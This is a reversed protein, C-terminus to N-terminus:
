TPLSRDLEVHERQSLSPAEESEIGHLGVRVAVAAAEVAPVGGTPKAVFCSFTRESESLLGGILSVTASALTYPGPPWLRAARQRLRQLQPPSLAQELARGGATAHSWGIVPHEPPNGVVSVAVQSPSVGAELAVIARRASGSRAPGGRRNAGM